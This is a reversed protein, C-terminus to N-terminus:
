KSIPFSVDDARGNEMFDDSFLELSLLFAAYPDDKTLHKITEDIKVASLQVDSLINTNKAHSSNNSTM